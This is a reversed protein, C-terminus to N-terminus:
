SSKAPVRRPEGIPRGGTGFQQARQTAEDLGLRARPNGPDGALARAFQLAAEAPKGQDLLVRGLDIRAEVYYPNLRLAAELQEAAAAYRGREALILGKQAYGTVYSPDIDLARDVWSLGEDFRGRAALMLGLAGAAEASPSDSAAAARYLAEAEPLRGALQRVRGLGTLYKARSIGGASYARALVSEDDRWNGCLNWSWGMLLLIVALGLLPVLIRGTRGPAGMVGCLGHAVPLYLPMTALYSYRDAVPGVSSRVLGSVPLLFVLYAVWAALAGPRRRRLVVLGATLVATLAAHLALPRPVNGELGQYLVSLGRPWLTKEVYFYASEGFGLIRDASGGGRTTNVPDGAYKASFAIVLFLSGLLVLPLKEFVARRLEVGRSEAARSFRELPYVDLVFFVLPLALAAAKCLLAALYLLTVALLWKARKTPEAGETRLYALTALLSFAASPLYPQCSAWAVVEVRLPHVSFLLAAMAASARVEPDDCAPGDLRPRRLIASFVCMLLVGNAAHLLM